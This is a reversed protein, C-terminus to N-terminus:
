AVNEVKNKLKRKLESYRKIILFISILALIAGVIYFWKPKQEENAMPVFIFILGVILLMLSLGTKNYVNGFIVNLFGMGIEILIKKEINPKEQNEM